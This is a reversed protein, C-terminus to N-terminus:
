SRGSNSFPKWSPKRGTGRAASRGADDAPARSAPQPQAGGVAAESPAAFSFPNRTVPRPIPLFM